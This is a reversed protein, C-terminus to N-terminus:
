PLLRQQPKPEATSDSYTAYDVTLEEGKKIDRIAFFRYTNDCAVNPTPSENFYWAPTLRNFNRPCGYVDDKLICFDDYLKREEASLRGLDSKHIWILEEDDDPFIYTGKSIDRIAFVGVGHIKSAHLRACVGQHPLAVNNRTKM